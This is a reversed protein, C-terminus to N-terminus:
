YTWQYLLNKLYIFVMIADRRGKGPGFLDVRFQYLHPEGVCVGGGSNPGAVAHQLVSWGCTCAVEGAGGGWGLLGCRAPASGARV